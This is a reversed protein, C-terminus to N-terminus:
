GKAPNDHMWCTLVEWAEADETSRVKAVHACANELQGPGPAYEADAMNAAVWERDIWDTVYCGHKRLVELAAERAQKPNGEAGSVNGLLQAVHIRAEKLLAGYAPDSAFGPSPHLACGSATFVIRLADLESMTGGTVPLAKCAAEEREIMDDITKLADTYPKCQEPTAWKWETLKAQLLTTAMKLASLESM